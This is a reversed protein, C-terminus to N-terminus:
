FYEKLIKRRENYYNCLDVKGSDHICWPMDVKPVVVRYGARKFELSQSVDYFDWKDLIDERWRLDYQTIMCLGDVVEVDECYDALQGFDYYSMMRSNHEFIKGVRPKRWMVKNEPLEKCGVLGIMGIQSDKFIDLIKHIFNKEIILVDQHLYVKYKADSALMGENYGSAISHANWISLVEITYGEAVNLRNIFYRAENAQQENNVCMIFCIKKEDM